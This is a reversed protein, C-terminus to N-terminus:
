PTVSNRFSPCASFLIGGRFSRKAPPIIILFLIIFFVTIVVLDNHKKSLQCTGANDNYSGANCQCINSVCTSHSDSCSETIGTTCTEGLGGVSFLLILRQVLFGVIQM